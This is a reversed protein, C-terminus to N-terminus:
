GEAVMVESWINAYCHARSRGLNKVQMSVIGCDHMSVMSSHPSLEM